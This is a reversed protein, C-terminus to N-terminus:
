YQREPIHNIISFSLQSLYANIVEADLMFNKSELILGSNGDFKFGEFSPPLCGLPKNGCGNFKFHVFLYRYNGSKPAELSYDIGAKHKLDVPRWRLNSADRVESKIIGVLTNEQDMLYVHFEEDEALKPLTSPLFDPFLDDRYHHSIWDTIFYSDSSKETDSGFLEFTELIALIIDEDPEIWTPPYKFTIQREENYYTIWESTGLTYLEDDALGSNTESKTDKPQQSSLEPGITDINGQYQHGFWFGLFPLAVLMTLALYKSFPTVTTFQKKLGSEEQIEESVNVEDM